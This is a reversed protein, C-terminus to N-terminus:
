QPFRGRASRLGDLGQQARKAEESGPALTVVKQWAAEAGKLDQKGFALVIGQNLLTKLSAPDINLSADLQKLARDIQNDYYYSVALDTSAAANKPDLRFASEYWPIAEAYREADFYLNAVEVRVTANTPQTAAKRQLEAVRTEDLPPPKPAAVPPQPTEPQPAPPVPVPPQSTSVPGPPQPDVLYMRHWVVSAAIAVLLVAGIAIALNRPRLSEFMGPVRASSDPEAPEVPVPPTVTPPAPVDRSGVYSVESIHTDQESPDTKRIEPDRPVMRRLTEGLRKIHAELPTTLADLWHVGMLNYELSGQPVVNEIRFPILPIEADIACEVEKPIQRSANAHKSFVLVIARSSRIAAVIASRWDVGPQIDRPAIWCRLGQQELTACVMDAITKDENAHSIFVDHAM